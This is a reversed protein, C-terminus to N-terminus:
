GEIAIGKKDLIPQMLRRLNEHFILGKEADSIRAGHVKALQTGFSRGTVDSGYLVREAGLERVALEVYGETPYGGGIGAYVNPHDRIVRLGLEWDGGAHGCIFSYDPYRVAVKVLDQPTSEKPFNGGGPHPPDGGLKIWTHQFIVARLEVARQFVPDYAPKSAIGSGGGLKLGVMPGEGVWRELLDVARQTQELDARVFGFIRQRRRELAERIEQDSPGEDRGTRLFVCLRHIGVRGAIELLKDMQADLTQGPVRSSPLHCHLDWINM